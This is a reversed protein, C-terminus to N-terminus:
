FMISKVQEEASALLKQAEQSLSTTSLSSSNISTSSSISESVSSFQQVSSTMSIKSSATGSVSEQVRQEMLNHEEKKSSEQVHSSIGKEQIVQLLV